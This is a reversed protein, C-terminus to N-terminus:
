KDFRDVDLRLLSINDVQIETFDDNELYFEIKDNNALLWSPVAGMPVLVKGNCIQMRYYNEESYGTEENSWRVILTCNNLDDPVSLEFYIFDAKEGYVKTDFVLEYKNSSNLKVDHGDYVEVVEFIDKLSDYSNGWATCVGELDHTTYREFACNKIMTTRAENANGSIEEYRNPEVLFIVGGQDYLIYGREMFWHYIYYEKLSLADFQVLMPPEKELVEINRYQTKGDAMAYIAADPTYTEQNLIYYMAQNGSLLFVKEGDKLVTDMAIQTNELIYKSINKIFGNGLKSFTSNSTDILQYDEDVMYTFKIKNYDNFAPIGVMYVTVFIGIGMLIYCTVKKLFKYGYEFLFIPLFLGTIWVLVVSTRALFWDNDMRVFGFTYTIPLMVLGILLLIFAPSKLARIRSNKNVHLYNIMLILYIIVIILPIGFEFTAFLVNQMFFHDKLFPLFGEPIRSHMIVTIGDALKTQNSLELVNNAMRFLLPISCVICGVLIIAYFVKYKSLQDRFRKKKILLYLRVLAYPLTAVLLAAGYIPYYLGNLFSIAVWALIWELDDKKAIICLIIISPVLLLTRNYDYTGLFVIALCAFEPKVFKYLLWGILLGVFLYQLYWAFNYELVRGSLLVNQIFGFFLPYLGSESIYDKYPIQNLEIIQQWPLLEEGTHWFDSSYIYSANNAMHFALIVMITTPLIWTTKKKVISVAQYLYLGLIVILMIAIFRVPPIIEVFSDMYFYNSVFSGCLLLPLFLQTVIAITELIFYSKKRAAVIIVISGLVISVCLLLINSINEGYGVFGSMTYCALLAYYLLFYLEFCRLLTGEKSLLGGISKKEIAMLFLCLLVCGWLSSDIRCDSLLLFIAPIFLYGWFLFGSEKKEVKTFSKDKKRSFLMSVCLCSVIGVFFAMWVANLEGTKNSNYIAVERVIIDYYEQTNEFAEKLKVILLSAVVIISTVLPIMVKKNEIITDKKTETCM